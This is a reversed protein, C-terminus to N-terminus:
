YFAIPWDERNDLVNVTTVGGHLTYMKVGM